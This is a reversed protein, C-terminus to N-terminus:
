PLRSRAPRAACRDSCTSSRAPLARLPGGSRDRGSARPRRASPRDRGPGARRASRSGRPRWGSPIPRVRVCWRRCRRWPRRAALELQAGGALHHLEVAEEREILFAVVLVVLVLLRAAQRRHAFAFREGLLRDVGRLMEGLRRRAIRFGRQDLAHFLEADAPGRGIGRDQLHQLVAAIHADVLLPKIGSSLPRTTTPEQLAEELAIDFVIEGGVEFLLEVADGVVLEVPLLHQLSKQTSKMPATLSILSRRMVWTSSASLSRSAGCMKGGRASPPSGRCHGIQPVPWSDSLSPVNPAKM